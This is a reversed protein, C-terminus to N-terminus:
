KWFVRRQYFLAKDLDPWIWSSEQGPGFGLSIQKNKVFEKESAFLVDFDKSWFSEKDGTFQRFNQPWNGKRDGLVIFELEPNAWGLVDINWEKSADLVLGALKIQRPAWFFYGKKQGLAQSLIQKPGLYFLGNLANNNESEQIFNLINERSMAMISEVGMLELGVLIQEPPENEEWNEVIALIEKTGTMIAPMIAALVKNAAKFQNDIVCVLRNWPTIQVYSKLGQGQALSVVKEQVEERGYYNYLNAILKKLWSRKLAGLQEYAQGLVQDDLAFRELWNDLQM